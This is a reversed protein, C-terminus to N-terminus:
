DTPDEVGSLRTILEEDAEVHILFQDFDVASVAALKRLACDVDFRDPPPDMDVVVQTIGDAIAFADLVSLHSLPDEITWRVLFRGAAFRDELPREADGLIEAIDHISGEPCLKGSVDPVSQVIACALGLSEDPYETVLRKGNMFNAVFQLVPVSINRQLLSAILTIATKVLLPDHKGVAITDLLPLWDAQLAFNSSLEAPTREVVDLVLSLVREAASDDAKVLFERIANSLQGACVEAMLYYLELM